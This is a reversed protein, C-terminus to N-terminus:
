EERFPAGEGMLKLGGFFPLKRHDDTGGGDGILKKKRKEEKESTDGEGHM